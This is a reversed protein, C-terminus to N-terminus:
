RGLRVVAHGNDYSAQNADKPDCLYLACGRCDGQHYATLGYHAAIEQADAM